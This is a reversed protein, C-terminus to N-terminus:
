HGQCLYEEGNSKQSDSKERCRRQERRELGRKSRPPADPGPNKNGVLEVLQGEKEPRERSRFSTSIVKSKVEIRM